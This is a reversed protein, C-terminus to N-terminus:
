SVPSFLLARGHDSGLVNTRKCVKASVRLSVNSSQLSSTAGLQQCDIPLSLHDYLISRRILSQDLRQFPEFTVAPLFRVSPLLASSEALSCLWSFWASHLARSRDTLKTVEGAFADVLRRTSRAEPPGVGDGAQNLTTRAIPTVIRQNM